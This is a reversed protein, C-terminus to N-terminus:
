AEATAPARRREILTGVIMAVISLPLAIFLSDVVEWPFGLVSPNGTIIESVRLVSSEAKHVFVTWLAWAVGGTVLSAMAGLRSPNKSFVAVTYAPLFAAACLGMFMATSRAIIDGPMIFALGLSAAIMVFTGIKNVRLKSADEDSGRLGAPFFKSRRLHVWIDHGAATGMVHFLSSMTSMAAALLALVFIVVLWEPMATDIFLPVINDINGTMEVSIKGFNEHFYVNTLAGM